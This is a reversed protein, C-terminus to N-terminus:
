TLAANLISVSHSVEPNYHVKTNGSIIKLM